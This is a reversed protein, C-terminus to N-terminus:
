ESVPVKIQFNRQEPCKWINNAWDYLDETSYFVPKSQKKFEAVERECGKSVWKGVLREYRALPLYCADYARIMGLDYMLWTEYEEPQYQHQIHSWLPAVPLVVGDEMMCHWVHMQFRTNKEPDGNTYPSSIYVIPKSPM